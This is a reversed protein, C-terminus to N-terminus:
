RGHGYGDYYPRQYRYYVPRGHYPREVYVPAPQVYVPTPRVYVPAPQYYVPQPVPRYVPPAAYAPAAYVPAANANANSIMTGIAVAGLIGAAIAIGNNGGRERAFASTSASAALVTTLLLAPILKRTIMIIDKINLRM